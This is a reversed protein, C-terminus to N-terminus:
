QWIPINFKEAFKYISEICSSQNTAVKCFYMARRIEKKIANIEYKWLWDPCEGKEVYTIIDFIEANEKGRSLRLIRGARQIYQRQNSSSAMLLERRATPIDIGEDMVRMSLLCSIESKELRECYLNRDHESTSADIINFPIKLRLLSEQAHSLQNTDEFFILIHDLKKSNSLFTIIKDFISNKCMAKKVIKARKLLVIEQPSLEDKNPNEQIRLARKTLRGYERIEEPSLKCYFPFYSFESLYGDAIAENLSYKFENNGFFDKIEKTGEEDFMREPTATLGLRWEFNSLMSRSFTTAGIWHTEDAIILNGKGIADLFDSENARRSLSSYTIIVVGDEKFINCYSWFDLKKERGYIYPDTGFFHNWEKKWQYLLNETPVAVITFRKGIKEYLTKACNLAVLTKGTGTAMELIAQFNMDAFFNIAKEQYPRLKLNNKMEKQNEGKLAFDIKEKVKGPLDSLIFDKSLFRNLWYSYFRSYDDQVYSNEGEIWSRFVKIEEGNLEYGEYTENLSGSFSIRNGGYDEFIGFKMHFIGKMGLIFKIELKRAAILQLLAKTSENSLMYSMLTEELFIESIKDEALKKGEIIAYYDSESILVSIILKMSGEKSVLKSLGKSIVKLSSSSFYAAARLYIKAESLVPVFFDTALDSSYSDYSRSLKLDTFAM